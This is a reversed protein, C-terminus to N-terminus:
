RPPDDWADYTTLLWPPRLDGLSRTIGRGFPRKMAQLYPHDEGSVLQYSEDELYPSAPVPLNPSPSLDTILTNYPEANIYITKGHKELDEPGVVIPVPTRLNSSPYINTGGITGRRVLLNFSLIRPHPTALSM